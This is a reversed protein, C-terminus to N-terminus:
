EEKETARWDEGSLRVAGGRLRPTRKAHAGCIAAIEDAFWAERDEDSGAQGAVGQVWVTTLELHDAMEDPAGRGPAFPGFHTSSVAHRPAVRRHARATMGSGLDIDRRTAAHHLARVSGCAPPTASMRSGTDASFYSVHQSAHGRTSCKSTADRRRCASAVASCSSTIAPVSPIRGV